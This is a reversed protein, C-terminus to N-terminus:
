ESLVAFLWSAAKLLNDMTTIHLEHESQMLNDM